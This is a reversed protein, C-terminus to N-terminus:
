EILFGRFLFAFPLRSEILGHLSRHGLQLLTCTLQHRLDLVARLSHADLSISLSADSVHLPRHLPFDANHAFPLCNLRFL